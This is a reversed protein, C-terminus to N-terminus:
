LESLYLASLMWHTHSATILNYHVFLWVAYKIRSTQTKNKVKWKINVLESVDTKENKSITNMKVITCQLRKWSLWIDKFFLINVYSTFLELYVAKFNCRNDTPILVGHRKDRSGLQYHEQLRHGNYLLPKRGSSSSEAHSVALIGFLCYWM